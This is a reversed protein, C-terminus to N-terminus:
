KNDGQIDNPTDEKSSTLKEIHSELQKIRFELQFLMSSIDKNLNIITRWEDYTIRKIKNEKDTM